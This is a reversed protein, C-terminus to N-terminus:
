DNPAEQTWNNSDFINEKVHWWENDKISFQYTGNYLPQHADSASIYIGNKKFDSTEIPIIKGTYPNTFTQDFDKLLLSPTDANTMFTNDTILNGNSDFDKYM